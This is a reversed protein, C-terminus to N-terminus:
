SINQFMKEHFPQGNKANIIFPNPKPSKTDDKTPFLVISLDFHTKKAYSLLSIISVAKVSVSTGICTFNKNLSKEGHESIGM